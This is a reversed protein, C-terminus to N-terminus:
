SWRSRCQITCEKGVRREESRQTIQLLGSLGIVRQYEEVALGAAWRVVEDPAREPQMGTKLRADLIWQCVEAIALHTYIGTTLPLSQAKRSFGMGYPGARYEIWRAMDCGNTGREHESRSVLWLVLPPEATTAAAEPTPTTM